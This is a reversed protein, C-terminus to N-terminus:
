VQSFKTLLDPHVQHRYSQDLLTAEWAAKSGVHNTHRSKSRFAKNKSSGLDGLAVASNMNGAWQSGCAEWALRALSCRLHGQPSVLVAGRCRPATWTPQKKTELVAMTANRLLSDSAQRKSCKLGRNSNNELYIGWLLLMAKNDCKRSKKCYQDFLEANAALNSTTSMTFAENTLNWITNHESAPATNLQDALPILVPSGPIAKSGFARTRIQHLAEHVSPWLIGSLSSIRNKLEIFCHQVRKDMAQQARITEAITLSQFDHLIEPGALRPHFSQYDSLSPLFSLPLHLVSSNGKAKERAMGVAVMLKSVDLSAISSCSPSEMLRANMANTLDAFAISHEWIWFHRPLTMLVASSQINQTTSVGRIKDGGHDRYTGHLHMNVSAGEKRIWAAISTFDDNKDGVGIAIGKALVRSSFYAYCLFVAASSKM